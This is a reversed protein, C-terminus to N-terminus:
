REVPSRIDLLGSRVAAATARRASPRDARRRTRDRRRRRRGAGRRRRGSRRGGALGDATGDATATPAAAGSPVTRSASSQVGFVFWVPKKTARRSRSTRAVGADVELDQRVARVAGSASIAAPWASHPILKWSASVNAAAAPAGTTDTM